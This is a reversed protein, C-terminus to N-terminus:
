WRHAADEAIGLLGDLDVWDGGPARARGSFEGFVQHIRSAVLGLDTVAKRLHFPRFHVELGDGTVSWPRTLDARDYRWRLRGALKHLRGDVLLANETMPTGDTWGGGLQLGRGGGPLTGAAWNWRITRPWKGRGHDGIAVTDVASLAVDAGDIRVRGRASRGVDKVTYQFLRSSWPIVVGLCEHDRPRDVVLDVHLGPARARLWTGEPAEDVVISVPGRRVSAVRTDDGDTFRAGRAAPDLRRHAIVQGSTRDYLHIEYLGVYDLSAATLGVVLRPSMVCWYDWRKARGWGRLNARHLPRRSWGVALPNLRGDPLCLDVPETIEREGGVMVRIYGRVWHRRVDQWPRPGPALTAPAM